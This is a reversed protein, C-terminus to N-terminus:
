SADFLSMLNPVVVDQGQPTKRDNQHRDPKVPKSAVPAPALPVGDQSRDSGPKERPVASPIQVVPTHRRAQKPANEMATNIAEVIDTSDHHGQGHITIVSAHFVTPSKHAGWQAYVSLHSLLGKDAMDRLKAELDVM